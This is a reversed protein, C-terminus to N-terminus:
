ISRGGDVTIASGTLYGADPGLLFELLAGIERERGFRNAPILELLEQAIQPDGLYPATMRSPFYGPCVATVSLGEASWELALSRALSLAAAKSANYDAFHAEPRVANVSANIVLSGPRTLTRHAAQAVHLGGVVNVDLVRRFLDPDLQEAPKGEGDVGANSFVGDLGDLEDVAAAFAADVADRDTVDVVSGGLAVGDGLAAGLTRESTGTIWVRHGSATLHRAVASGIGSTGGTILYRRSM